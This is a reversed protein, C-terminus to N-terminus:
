EEEKYCSKILEDYFPHRYGIFSEKNEKLEKLLIELTGNPKYEIGKRPLPLIPFDRKLETYGWHTKGCKKCEYVDGHLGLDSESIWQKCSVCYINVYNCTKLTGIDVTKCFYCGYEAYKKRYINGGCNPCSVELITVDKDEM